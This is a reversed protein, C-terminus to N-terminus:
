IIREDDLSEKGEEMGMGMRKGGSVGKNGAAEKALGFREIRNV